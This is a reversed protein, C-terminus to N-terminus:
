VNLFTVIEAPVKENFNKAKWQLLKKFSDSLLLM